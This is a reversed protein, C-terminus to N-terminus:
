STERFREVLERVVGVLPRGRAEVLDAVPRGPPGGCSEFGRGWRSGLVDGLSRALDRLARWWVRGSARALWRLVTAWRGASLTESLSAPATRASLWVRGLLGLSTEPVLGAVGPVVRRPPTLSTEPVLGAVGALVRRPLRLPGEVLGAAVDRRPRGLGSPSAGAVGQASTECAAQAVRRCVEVLGAVVGEARDEYADPVARRSV